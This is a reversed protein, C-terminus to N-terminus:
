SRNSDSTTASALLANKIADLRAELGTEFNGRATELRCAGPALGADSALQLDPGSIGSLTGVDDPALYLIAPRQERSAITELVLRRVLPEQDHLEHLVAGLSSFTLEAVTDPLKAKVHALLEKLSSGLEELRKSQEDLAQANAENEKLVSARAKAVAAAIEAEAGELGKRYGEEQAQRFAQERAAREAERQREEADDHMPASNTPGEDQVLALRLPRVEATADLIRELNM